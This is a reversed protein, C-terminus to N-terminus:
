HPQFRAALGKDAADLPDSTRVLHESALKLLMRGAQMPTLGTTQAVQYSDIPRGAARVEDLVVQRIAKDTVM